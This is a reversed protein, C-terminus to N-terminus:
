CVPGRHYLVSAGCNSCVRRSGLRKIVDDDSIDFYVAHDIPDIKEFAEAQGMTDCIDRFFAIIQYYYKGPIKPVKLELKNGKIEEPLGPRKADNMKVIFKGIATDGTPNGYPRDLKEVVYIYIGSVIEMM